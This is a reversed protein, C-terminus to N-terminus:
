VHWLERFLLFPNTLVFAFGRYLFEFGIASNAAQNKVLEAVDDSRSGKSQFLFDNLAMELNM